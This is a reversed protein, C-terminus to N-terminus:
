EAELGDRFLPKKEEFWLLLERLALPSHLSPGVGSQNLTNVGHCGDCVRVEGSALTIWYRERVLPADTEGDLLQWVLAREAPVFAVASGDSFVPVTSASAGGSRRSAFERNLRTAIDDRLPVALVRRGPKPARGPEADLGIGRVQDGQFFEIGGIERVQSSDNGRREVGPGFEDARARLSYPQQKDADDRSTADRVAILGLRHLRLFDLMEDLPVDHANFVEQEPAPLECRHLAPEPRSVLEVPDLEWFDGAFEVQRSGVTLRVERSIPATLLFEGPLHTGSPGEVLRRLRFRYQTDPEGLPASPVAGAADTVAAVLTGNVLPLPNRFQGSAEAGYNFSGAATLPFIQIAEPNRGPPACVRVIQGASHSGFERANTAVFCGPQAPEEALHLLGADSRLFIAGPAPDAIRTALGLANPVVFSPEVFGVLEQRGVHNLTEECHGDVDIEWPLFHNFMHRNAPIGLASDHVADRREPFYERQDGLRAELSTESTYNFTGNRNDPAENQQDRQLHDWRTFLIRGASDVLPDFSGSPSHQLLRPATREASLLWLGTNTPASEYEDLQPYLHQEGSRPSDSVYVVGNGSIYAPMINNYRSDQGAVRQVTIAAPDCSGDAFGRAEYLQWKGAGVVMSFIITQADFSADPNRVSIAHAGQDINPEGMGAARTVNCVSGNPFRIMLDGGRGASGVDPLHNGFASGVTVFDARIPYQTVFAIPNTGFAPDVSGQAFVPGAALASLSAVGGLLHGIISGGAKM